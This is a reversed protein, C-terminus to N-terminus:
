KDGWTAKIAARVRAMEETDGEGYHSEDGSPNVCCVYGHTSKQVYWAAFKDTVEWAAAIDTSYDPWDFKAVISFEHLYGKAKQQKLYERIERDSGFCYPYDSQRTTYTHTKGRDKSVVLYKIPIMGCTNGVIADLESGAELALAQELTYTKM